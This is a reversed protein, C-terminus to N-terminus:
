LGGVSHYAASHAKTPHHGHEDIATRLWAVPIITSANAQDWWVMYAWASAHWLAIGEQLGLLLGVM